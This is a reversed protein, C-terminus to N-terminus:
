QYPLQARMWVPRDRGADGPPTWTRQQFTKREETPQEPTTTSPAADGAESFCLLRM